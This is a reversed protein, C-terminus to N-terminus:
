QENPKISKYEEERKQYKKYKEYLYKKDCLCLIFYMIFLLIVEVIGECSCSNSHYEVINIILKIVVGIILIVQLCGFIKVFEGFLGQIPRIHCDKDSKLLNILHFCETEEMKDKGFPHYEKPFIGMKQKDKEEAKNEEDKDKDTILLKNFYKSRIAYTIFQEYRQAYGQYICIRRMIHLVIYSAITTFIFVDLSYLEKDNDYLNWARNIESFDITTHIFMYAYGGFVVIMAALLTVVSNLNSNNNIAYQEHLQLEMDKQMKETENSPETPSIIKSTYLSKTIQNGKYFINM